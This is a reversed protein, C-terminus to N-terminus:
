RSTIFIIGGEPDMSRELREGPFHTSVDSDVRKHAVGWKGDMLM